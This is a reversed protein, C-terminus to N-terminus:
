EPGTELFASKVTKIVDVIVAIKTYHNGKSKVTLQLYKDLNICFEDAKV